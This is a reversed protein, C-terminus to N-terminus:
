VASIAQRVNLRLDADLGSVAKSAGALTAPRPALWRDLPLRDAALDVTLSPPDGQTLRLGGSIAMDDLTGNLHQLAIDGGGAVVHASLEARQAVSEPLEALLRSPLWGPAAENLWRATTRLVPAEVRADGEFRPRVPDDRAIRGSVRLKGNGPLLAEADRVVLDKGELDIAARVHELTGGALPQRRPRSM